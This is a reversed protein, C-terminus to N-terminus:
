LRGGNWFDVHGRGTVKQVWQGAARFTQNGGHRGFGVRLYRNSNIWGGPRFAKSAAAGGLAAAGQIQGAVKAIQYEDSCPDVGGDIGAADRVDQLDGLGFTIGNYVGDGFGTVGNVVQQSPGWGGTANYIAGWLPDLGELGYPDIYNVPSGYVYAYVTRGSTPRRVWRRKQKIRRPSLLAAAM